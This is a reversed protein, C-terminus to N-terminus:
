DPLDECIFGQTNIMKVVDNENLHSLAEIRLVNDIDEIDITWSIIMSHDNFAHTVESIMKATKIDTRFILVVVSSAAGKASATIPGTTNHAPLILMM